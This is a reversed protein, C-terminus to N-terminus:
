KIIGELSTNTFLPLNLFTNLKLIQLVAEDIILDPVIDTMNNIANKYAVMSDPHVKEMFKPTAYINFYSSGLEIIGIFWHNNTSLPKTITNFFSLNTSLEVRIVYWDVNSMSLM